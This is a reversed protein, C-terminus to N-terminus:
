SFMLPVHMNLFVFACIALYVPLFCKVFMSLCAYITSPCTLPCALIHYVSLCFSVYFPKLLFHPAHARISLRVPPLSPCVLPPLYAFIYMSPDVSLRIPLRFISLCRTPMCASEFASTCTPPYVLLHVRLHVHYFLALISSLTHTHIHTYTQSLSLSFLRLHGSLSLYPSPSHSLFLWLSPSPALYFSLSLSSSLKWRTAALWASM